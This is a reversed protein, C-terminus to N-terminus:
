YHLGGARVGIVPLYYVAVLIVVIVFVIRVVLGFPAPLPLMTIVYYLLGFVLIAILVYLLLEIMSREM